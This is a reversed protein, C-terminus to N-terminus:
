TRLFFEDNFLSDELILEFIRDVVQDVLDFVLFFDNNLRISRQHETVLSVFRRNVANGFFKIGNTM